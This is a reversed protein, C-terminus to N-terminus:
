MTPGLRRKAVVLMEDSLGREDLVRQMENTTSSLAEQLRSGNLSPHLVALTSILEYVDQGFYWIALVTYGHRQLMLELGKTSFLFLHLPPHMMRNVQEPFVMQSFCSLSPFKPTEIILNDGAQQAQSLMKLLANPDLVHELVSFLSIVGFRGTHRSLTESTVYEESVRVGFTRRAYEAEMANTELGMTEFGHECAAKLIEGVGCGIDLWSKSRATLHDLVFQVKPRAVAALRYEITRDNALLTRNAATYYDSRYAAEIDSQEPRNSLYATGCRACERYTFGYITVLDAAKPGECVPCRPIHPGGRIARSFAGAREVSASKDLDRKLQRSDLPKGFRIVPLDKKL